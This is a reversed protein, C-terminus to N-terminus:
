RRLLSRFIEENVCHKLAEDLMVKSSAVLDALYQDLSISTQDESAQLLGSLQHFRGSAIINRVASIGTLVELARLRGGGIAPVLRSSIIGGL